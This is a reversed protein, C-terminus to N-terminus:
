SISINNEVSTAGPASWATSSALRRANWTTVKGSLTIKGGQATVTITDPDYYWSRHLANEIQKKINSANVAPKVDIQNSVGTVGSLAGIDMGATEKEFNWGVAGTLTVWGQQVKVKIAKDPIASNWGLRDIAAAAIDEDSLKIDYPLKVEIEEAVAKVGKVRSAAREAAVKHMYTGVHGTLTIVGAHATVGIHAPNVGPEWILEDLVAQKLDSDSSM